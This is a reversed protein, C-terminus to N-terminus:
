DFEDSEIDRDVVQGPLTSTNPWLKRGPYISTNIGTHVHDGIIAGLKRRGTDVLEGKIMSRHNAGDHRFNATVTGCGLNADCGVVSDGVYTLHPVRAGDMIISGKIEVGQGVKCGSGITTYPRIWCSPGIVCDDGIIVPGDIVVGPRILTGTGITVKGQVHAGRKVEGKIRNVFGEDMLATSADLLNWPYVIPLWFGKAPVVRYGGTEALTQIASTIEIEGRSSPATKELVDFVDPTFSYAGIGALNSFIEKPKEEIRVVRDDKTEYICYLRPDEVTKVLSANEREALAKLDDTHYLDDGNIAIFPGKVAERCCLVAHGTGKQETQEVYAIAMGDFSTGLAERIMDARYGVVIVVRDVVGRLAELQHQIIPKNLIPLLPKPRTLTLPHTRTSKGAALIVASKM